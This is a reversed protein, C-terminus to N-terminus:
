RLLAALNFKIALALVCATLLLRTVWRIVARGATRRADRWADLLTRLDHIDGSANEDHLGLRGLARQAGLDSAEEVLARLTVISSGEQRAQNILAALTLAASDTPQTM